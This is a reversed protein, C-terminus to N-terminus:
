FDARFAIPKPKDRNDDTARPVLVISEYDELEVGPQLAILGSITNGQYFTTGLKESKKPSSYLWAEAFVYDEPNDARTVEVDFFVTGGGCSVGITGASGSDDVANVTLAEVGKLRPDIDDCPDVAGISSFDINSASTGALPGSEGKDDTYTHIIGYIGGGVMALGVLTFLLAWLLGRVSPNKKTSSAM